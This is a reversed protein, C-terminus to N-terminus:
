ANHAKWWKQFMFLTWLSYCDDKKGSLHNNLLQQTFGPAFLGQERLFGPELLTSLEARLPGRLWKALPVGFGMKPREWFKPNLYRSLLSKLIRKKMGEAYTFDSALGNAFEVVHHSLLPVRVELAHHMSARDVKTLIDDPLYLYQDLLAGAEMFPSSDLRACAEHLRSNRERYDYGRLERFRACHFIGLFILFSEERNRYAMARGRLGLGGSGGLRDLTDGFWRRLPAPILDYKLLRRYGDYRPYGRFLEDGGDGSLAVTVKERTIRSLLLTPLASSDSFPEDYIGTLSPVLELLDGEDMIRSTHDTGLVRAVAEAHGSEDFEADKFGISFTKLSGGLHKQAIASVLSSDIGGSLFAGLPVDSMLQSKVATQLLEDLRDVASEFTSPADTKRDEVPDWYPRPIGGDMTLQLIHGPPLKFAGEYITLPNPVHGLCLYRDLATQSMRRDFGPLLTLAKLESAFAWGHSFRAYHLPKIGLRDRVLWLSTGDSAAFAFMGDLKRVTEELEWTELAWLLVETDTTTTFRRGKAELERRLAPANYIEGNYSVTWHGRAMPQRGSLSLDLISLRTHGLTIMFGPLRVSTLGEDDPGRHKQIANMRRVLDHAETHSPDTILGNIGCM